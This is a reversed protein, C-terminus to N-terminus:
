IFRDNGPKVLCDLKRLKQIGAKAPIVIKKLNLDQRSDQMQVNKFLVTIRSM